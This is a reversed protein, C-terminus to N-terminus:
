HLNLNSSASESPLVLYQRSCRVTPLRTNPPWIPEPDSHPVLGSGVTWCFYVMDYPRLPTTAGIAGASSSGSGDGASSGGANAGTSDAEYHRSDLPFWTVSHAGPLAARALGRWVVRGNLVMYRIYRPSNTTFYVYEDYFAKCVVPVHTRRLDGSKLDAESPVRLHFGRPIFIRASPPDENYVSQRHIRVLIFLVLFQLM